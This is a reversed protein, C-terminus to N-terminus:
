SLRYLMPLQFTRVNSRTSNSFPKGKIEKLLNIFLLIPLTVASASCQNHIICSEKHNLKSLKQDFIHSFPIVAKIFDDIYLSQHIAEPVQIVFDAFCLQSFILMTKFLATVASSM